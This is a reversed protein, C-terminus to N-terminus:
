LVQMAWMTADNPNVQVPQLCVTPTAAAALLQPHAAIDVQKM